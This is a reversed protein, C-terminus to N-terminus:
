KSVVSNETTLPLEVIFETGFGPQSRVRIKGQHNEIIGRTVSLGLGTHEARRTFFPDYIKAIDAEKIGEGTDQILIQLGGKEESTGLYLKGGGPMAEIANMIINSLAQRIQSADVNLEIDAAKFEKTLKINKEALSGKLMGITENLLKHINTQQTAAQAPNSYNTLHELLSNIKEIEEKERVGYKHMFAPDSLHRDLDTDSEKLAKLPNAIEKIIGSTLDAMTKYREAQTVQLRMRENQRAIEAMTGRFFIRDVVDQIKTKLPNFLVAMVLTISISGWVSSYGLFTQFFQESTRVSILYLFTIATLVISYVISKKIIISIDLIKYKIIGYGIVIPFFAIGWNSYPWINYFFVSFFDGHAGVWGALSGVIIWKLQHHQLGRTTFFRICLLLFTTVLLIWYFLIYFILYVPNTDWSYTIWYFRGDFVPRLDGLWGVPDLFNIALFFAAVFYFFVILKRRKLGLYATGWHYFVPSVLIACINGIQWGLYGMAKTGGLTVILGGVGWTSIVLCFNGWIITPRKGAGKKYM